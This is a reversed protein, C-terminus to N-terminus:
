ALGRARRLKRNFTATASVFPSSTLFFGHHDVMVLYPRAPLTGSILFEGLFADNGGAGATPSTLKFPPDQNMEMVVIKPRTNVSSRLTVTEQSALKASGALNPMTVSVTAHLLWGTASWEELKASGVTTGTPLINSLAESLNQAADAWDMTGGVDPRVGILWDSGSLTPSDVFMRCDHPLGSVNYPITIRGIGISPGSM